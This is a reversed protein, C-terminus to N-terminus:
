LDWPIIMCLNPCLTLEGTGPSKAIKKGPLKLRGKSTGPVELAVRKLDSKYDEALRMNSKVLFDGIHTRRDEQKKASAAKTNKNTQVSFTDNKPSRELPSSTNSRNKKGSKKLKNINVGDVINEPKPKTRPYKGLGSLVKQSLKIM